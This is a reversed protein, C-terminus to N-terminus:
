RCKRLLGRGGLTTTFPETTSGDDPFRISLRLVEGDRTGFYVARRRHEVEDVLVPGGERVFYGEVEFRGHEDLALPGTLAGHGCDFEVTAGDATVELVVHEGGWRGEPVRDKGSALTGALLLLLVLGGQPGIV